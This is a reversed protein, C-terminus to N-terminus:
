KGSQHVFERVEKDLAFVEDINTPMKTFKEFAKIINTSIDM